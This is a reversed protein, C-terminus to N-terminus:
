EAFFIPTLANVSARPVIRVSSGCAQISYVLKVLHLEFLIREIFKDHIFVVFINDTGHNGIVDLLICILEPIKDISFPLAYHNKKMTNRDEESNKMISVFRVLAVQRRFFM